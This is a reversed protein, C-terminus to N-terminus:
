LALATATLFASFYSLSELKDNRKTPKKRVALKLEGWQLLWQRAGWVMRRSSRFENDMALTYNMLHM